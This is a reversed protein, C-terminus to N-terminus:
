LKEIKVIAVNFRHVKKMHTEFICPIAMVDTFLLSIVYEEKYKKLMRKIVNILENSFKHITYVTHPKLNLASALFKMDIGRRYIGFPPNMIVTDVGRLAIKVADSCLFFVNADNLPRLFDRAIALAQCDIDICFAITAGLLLAGYTLIGTGCGLDVVVKNTINGSIYAHWLMESAIRSDCVYQELERKPFPFRPVKSLMLELEKKSRIVM